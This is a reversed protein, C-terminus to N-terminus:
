RRRRSAAASRGPPLARRSRSAKERPSSPTPRARRRSKVCTLEAAHPPSVSCGHAFVLLEGDLELLLFAKLEADLEVRLHRRKDGVLGFREAPALSRIGCPEDYRADGVAEGRAADEAQTVLETLVGPRNARFRCTAQLAVIARAIPDGRDVDLESEGLAERFQLVLLAADRLELIEADDRLTNAG